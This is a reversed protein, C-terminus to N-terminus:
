TGVDALLVIALLYKTGAWCCNERRSSNSTFYSTGCCGALWCSLNHTGTKVDSTKFLNYESGFVVWCLLVSSYTSEEARVPLTYVPNCENRSASETRYYAKSLSQSTSCSIKM